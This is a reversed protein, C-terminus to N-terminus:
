AARCEIKYNVDNKFLGRVRPKISDRILFLCKHKKNKTNDIGQRDKHKKM